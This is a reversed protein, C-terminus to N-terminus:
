DGNVHDCLGKDQETELVVETAEAQDSEPQEAISEETNVIQAQDSPGLYQEYEAALEDYVSPTWIWYSERWQDPQPIPNKGSIM